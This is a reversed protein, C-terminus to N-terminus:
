SMQPLDRWGADGRVEDALRRVSAQDDLLSGAARWETLVGEADLQQSLAQVAIPDKMYSVM